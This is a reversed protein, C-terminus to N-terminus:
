SYDVLILSCCGLYKAVIERFILSRESFIRAIPAELFFRCLM